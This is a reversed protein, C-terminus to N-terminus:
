RKKEFPAQKRKNLLENMQFSRSIAEEFYEPEPEQSCQSSM